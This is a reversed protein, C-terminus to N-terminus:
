LASVDSQWCLDIYVFCCNKWYDHISTLAPCLSPKAGFFQHKWVTTNSFGRSLGKFLLSIWDIRFSILGSYENSPSVSFSLVEDEGGSAFLQSVPLSGWAPFAQFCSSFPTVSILRHITDGSEITMLKLLSQSITFSLFAQPWHPQLSDSM